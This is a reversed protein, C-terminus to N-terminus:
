DATPLAELAFREDVSKIEGDEIELDAQRLIADVAKIVNRPTLEDGREDLASIVKGLV